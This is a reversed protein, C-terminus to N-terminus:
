NTAEALVRDVIKYGSLQSIAEMVEWTKAELDNGPEIMHGIHVYVKGWPIHSGVIGLPLIPVQALKAFYATGLHPRGLVGPNKSRTGEVFMGLSWGAKLIQRVTKITSLKPKNRNVAITGYFEIVKSLFPNKFLEQKAFFAMPIGTSIVLLEPDYYSLHNAVVILPRQKPVNERGTVALRHYVAHFPALVGFATLLQLVKRTPTFVKPNFETM